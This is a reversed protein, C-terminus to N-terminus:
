RSTNILIEYLLNTPYNSIFIQRTLNMNLVKVWKKKAKDMNTVGYKGIKNKLKFGSNKMEHSQLITAQILHLIQPM